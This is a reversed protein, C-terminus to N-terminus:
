YGKSILKELAAIRKELTDNAAKLDTIESEATKIRDEYEEGLWDRVTDCINEMTLSSLDAQIDWINDENHKTRVNIDSIDKNIRDLIDDLYYHDDKIHSKLLNEIETVDTM